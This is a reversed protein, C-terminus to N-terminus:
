SQGAEHAPRAKAPWPGAMDRLVADICEVTLRICAGGAFLLDIHGGIDGEPTFDLALLELVAEPDDQRIHHSQVKLVSDFHVGARTREGAKGGNGDEWCYRNVCAAFRHQRPLYALDGARLVADQLHASLISLDEADQALLKLNGSM